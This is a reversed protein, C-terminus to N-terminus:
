QADKESSLPGDAKKWAGMGGTLNLVTRLGMDMAVSAALASSRGSACHFIYTKNENHEPKQAPSEPDLHFEHMGRSSVVAGPIVGTRAQEIGDRLDVFAHTGSDVLSM